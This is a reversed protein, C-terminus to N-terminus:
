LTKGDLVLLCILSSVHHEEEVVPSPYSTFTTFPVPIVYVGTLSRPEPYRWTMTPSGEDSFVIEYPNPRTDSAVSCFM